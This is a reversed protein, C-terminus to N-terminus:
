YGKRKYTKNYYIAYGTMISCTFKALTAKGIQILIRFYNGMLCWGYIRLSSEDLCRKIRRLFERKDKLENFIYLGDIGRGRKNWLIKDGVTTKDFTGPFRCTFFKQKAKM